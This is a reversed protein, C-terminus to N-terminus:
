ALMFLSRHTRAPQIATKGRGLARSSFVYQEIIATLAEELLLHGKLLVHAVEDIAGMEKRFRDISRDLEPFM